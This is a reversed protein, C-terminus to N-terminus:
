QLMAIIVDEGDTDYVTLNDGFDNVIYIEEPDPTFWAKINYLATEDFNAQRSVEEWEGLVYDGIEDDFRIPCKAIYAYQNNSVLEDISHPRKCAIYFDGNIQKEKDSLVSYWMEQISNQVDEITMPNEPRFVGRSMGDSDDQVWGSGPAFQM